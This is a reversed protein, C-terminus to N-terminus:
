RAPAEHWKERPVVKPEPTDGEYHPTMIQVGHENFVDLINRHLATYIAPADHPQDTRANIEYNVAFDGLGLQLVFPPPDQLLGPTRKAAELLMAEVQRWPVEYGIGVSAHLILGKDGALSDYNVVHSTLITSNPIVIEENKLSRLHVVLPRMAMVDGVVDGLKIRDGVRFARRYVITYGALINGIFTTAGLSVLVGLFISVGKFADTGSGPIYPFAIVVAFALVTIRLLRYTPHAWDRDFGFIEVTGAAVSDFFLRMLRLLSYVIFVLIAIFVLGPISEAVALAMTRLPDLLLSLMWQALARTWPFLGLVYVAWVGGIVLAVLWDLTRLGGKLTAWLRETQLVPFSQQRLNEIRARYRSELSRNIRSFLKRSVVLLALLLVSALASYLASVQLFPLTREYRYREIAGAIADRNVEALLSREIQELQADADVFTAVMKGRAVIETRDAKEALELEATPLTSDKAAAIVKSTIVAARDRAPYAPVGRVRFIPVGDVIVPATEVPEVAAAGAAATVCALMMGLVWRKLRCEAASAPAVTSNRTLSIMGLGVKRLREYGNRRAGDHRFGRTPRFSGHADM